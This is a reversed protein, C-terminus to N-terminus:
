EPRAVTFVRDLRSYDDDGLRALPDLLAADIAPVASTPDPTAIADALWASKIEGIVLGQPGEGLEIIQLRECLFAIRADKLRPLPWDNEPCLALQNATVESEGFPLSAATACVDAAMDSSAIHVVFHRREEINRWTDKKSKDRKRGISVSLAPPRSTVGSFYSFPALNLTDDGNDSLVWAIPRPIITRIMLRYVDRGSLHGLEIRM